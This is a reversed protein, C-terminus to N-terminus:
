YGPFYKQYIDPQQEDGNQNTEEPYQDFNSTDDDSKLTPVFPPTIENLRIKQFDIEKFWRHEAIDLYGRKLNGYRCSLDVTLLHSLIDKADDSFFTPYQPECKVIKEYLKFQNDDYFPSYGALMEFILVGLSWYDVAKGYGKSQIIEPALYDPTGCLTWTIDPVYKAFGFDTLKINGKADLLINEPKLDRYIVDRSHLYAIALLVEAAYFSSTKDDFNKHKRLLTFLEGGPIYDLIMYLNIKDQFTGWLKICFPYDVTLLVKRENNTHEVQKQQVIVIKKLVKIAYLQSNRKSRSIYVRGFSGTGVTRILNFESLSYDCRRKEINNDKNNNPELLTNDNGEEQQQRYQNSLVQQSLPCIDNQATKLFSNSPTNNLVPAHTSPEEQNHIFTYLSTPSHPPSVPYDNSTLVQFHMGNLSSM